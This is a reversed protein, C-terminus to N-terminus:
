AASVVMAPRTARISWSAGGGERFQSCSVSLNSAARPIRYPWCCRRAMRSAISLGTKMRVPPGPVPLVVVRLPMRERRSPSPSFTDRAAGVPRAALRIVSTVPRSALVMWRRSSTSGKRSVRVKLRLSFFGMGVSAMMTSSILMTSTRM